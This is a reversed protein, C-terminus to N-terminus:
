QVDQLRRRMLQAGLNGPDVSLIQEILTRAEDFEGLQYHREAQIEMEQISPTVEDAATAIEPNPADDTASIPTSTQPREDDEIERVAPSEDVVGTDSDVAGDIDTESESIEPLPRAGSDDQNSPVAGPQSQINAVPSGPLIIETGVELAKPVTIGNYRALIPFKLKDGLVQEALSSLTDTPGVTYVYNEAGLYDIPDSHLQDLLHEAYVPNAELERAWLLHKRAVLWQGADIMQIAFVRHEWGLLDSKEYEEAVEDGVNALSMSHNKVQEIIESASVNPARTAAGNTEDALEGAEMAMQDTNMEDTSTSSQTAESESGANQDGEPEVLTACAGLVFVAVFSMFCSVATARQTSRVRDPYSENFYSHRLKMGDILRIKIAM